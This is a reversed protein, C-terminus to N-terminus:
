VMVHNGTVWGAFGLLGLALCVPYAVYTLWRRSAVVEALVVGLPALGAVFRLTSALGASLSICLAALCFVAEAYRKKAVLVAILVFGGLAAWVFSTQETWRLHFPFGEQAGNWLQVLPNDLERNWGIQVHMFALGDGMWFRLFVAYAILGLPALGLALLLRTDTLASAVSRWSRDVVLRDALAQVAIALGFLVGTVRTASLMAGVVGASVFSSRRLAVMGALTLLIFLSESYALSFLLSFPGLLLGFSFLWYARQNSGFLPRAIGAAVLGCMNSVLYGALPWSLGSVRSLTGTIMPYLPFFAWDATGTRNSPLGQQYGEAVNRYWGCDWRCLQGVLAAPDFQQTATAFVVYRLTTALVVMAALLLWTSRSAAYGM